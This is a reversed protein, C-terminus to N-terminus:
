QFNIYNSKPNYSPMILYRPDENKLSTYEIDTLITRSYLGADANAVSYRYYITVDSASRKNTFSMAAFKTRKTAKSNIKSGIKIRSHRTRIYDKARSTFVYPLSQTALTKPRGFL